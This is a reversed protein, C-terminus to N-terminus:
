RETERSLTSLPFFDGKVSTTICHTMQLVLLHALKGRQAATIQSIVEIQELLPAAEELREAPHARDTLLLATPLSPFCRGEAKLPPM